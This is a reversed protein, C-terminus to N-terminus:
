WIVILPVAWCPSVYYPDYFYPDYYEVSSVVREEIVEEVVVTEYSQTNQTTTTNAQAQQTLRNAEIKEQLATQQARAEENLLLQRVVENGKNIMFETNARAEVDNNGLEYWHFATNCIELIETWYSGDLLSLEWLESETDIRGSNLFNMFVIEIPDINKFEAVAIRLDKFREQSKLEHWDEVNLADYSAFAFELSSIDFLCFVDFFEIFEKFKQRFNDLLTQGKETFAYCPTNGAQKDIRILDSTYMWTLINDLRQMEPPYSLQYKQPNKTLSDLIVVATLTEMQNEKLVYAQRLERERM